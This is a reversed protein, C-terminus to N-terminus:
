DLVAAAAPPPPLPVYALFGSIVIIAFMVVLEQTVSRSLKRGKRSDDLNPVLSFRNYAGLLILILLGTIKAMVLRGYMSGTLDWPWDIYLLTQTIGTGAVAILAILAAFSVRRAEIRFATIDRRFTWGLWILGGMWIAGGILHVSKAPIALLPNVAASHGVAGSVALCALGLFLALGRQGKATAWFALLALLVRSSEVIGLTSTLTALGFAGSLGTGPSLHYAWAAMHAAMLLSGFGLFRTTISGPNLNRRNRAASGFFLLGVGAMMAGLGIGRLVSALRPTAKQGADAQSDLAIPTSDARRAPSVDPILPPFLASDVSTQTLSFSFSGAVPHGDASVIRWAVRHRGNALPGLAGVLVKPDNPDLAVSLPATRGDPATMVIRSLEAVVAESFVLRISRPSRLLKEDAAPVSGILTAHLLKGAGSATPTAALGVCFVFVAARVSRRHWFNHNM